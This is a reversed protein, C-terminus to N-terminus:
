SRSPRDPTMEPNQPFHPINVTTQSSATKKVDRPQFLLIITAGIAVMILGACFYVNPRESNKSMMVALLVNIIPACGFVIPMVYTPKGGSSLAIIIGLAGLAGATGAILSWSIGNATWGGSLNGKAALWGVPIIIAVIFYALGVCILPKLKNHDLGNQGKHLMPGYAGWCFVTLAIGAFIALPKV